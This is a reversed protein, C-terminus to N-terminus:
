PHRLCDALAINRMQGQWSGPVGTKATEDRILALYERRCIAQGGLLALHPNEMQADIWPWQWNELLKALAKLALSSAGSELSFMSEAFFVRGIALGYLGGVLRKGDFVEISHGIGLRHMQCFADIMNQDIWTGHQHRRPSVACNTIVEEFCTDAKLLWGSKRLHRSRSKGLRVSDPIFGYRPDPSWWLIPEGPNYWPFIGQRYASVLWDPSLEGGSALLGNPELLAHEIDPFQVPFGSDKGIIQESMTPARPKFPSLM